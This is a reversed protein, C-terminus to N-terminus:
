FSGFMGCIERRRWLGTAVCKSGPAIPVPLGPAGSRGRADTGTPLNAKNSMGGEPTRPLWRRTGGIGLRCDCGDRGSPNAKNEVGVRMKLGFVGFNAKNPADAGASTRTMAGLSALRDERLRPRCDRRASNAKNPATPGDVTRRIGVSQGHRALCVRPEARGLGTTVAVLNTIVLGMFEVVSFARV